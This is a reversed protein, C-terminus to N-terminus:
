DGFVAGVGGVGAAARSQRESHERLWDETAARLVYFDRPLKPTASVLTDGVAQWRMLLDRTKRHDDAILDIIGALEHQVQADVREDIVADLQAPTLPATM